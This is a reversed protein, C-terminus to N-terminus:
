FFHGSATHRLSYVQASSKVHRALVWSMDTTKGDESNHTIVFPTHPGQEERHTEVCQRIEHWCNPRVSCIRVASQEHDFIAPEFEYEELIGKNKLQALMEYPSHLFEHPEVYCTTMMMEGMSQKIEIHPLPWTHRIHEAVYTKMDEDSRTGKYLLFCQERHWDPDEPQVAYTIVIHREGSSTQPLTKKVSHVGRRHKKKQPTIIDESMNTKSTLRPEIKLIARPELWCALICFAISKPLM